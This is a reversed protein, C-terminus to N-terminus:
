AGQPFTAAVFITPIFLLVMAVGQYLPGSVRHNKRNRALSLVITAAPAWILGVTAAILLPLLVMEWGEGERGIAVAFYVMMLATALGLAVLVLTERHCSDWIPFAVM